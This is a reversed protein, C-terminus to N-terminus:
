GADKDMYEIKFLRDWFFGQGFYIEKGFWLWSSEAVM